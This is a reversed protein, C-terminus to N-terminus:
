GTGPWMAQEGLEPEQVDDAGSRTAWHNPVATGCRQSKIQVYAAHLTHRDVKQLASSALPTNVKWLHKRVDDGSTDKQTVPESSLSEM